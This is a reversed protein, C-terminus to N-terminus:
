DSTALATANVHKVYWIATAAMAGLRFGSVYSGFFFKVAVSNVNNGLTLCGPVIGMLVSQLTFVFHSPSAENEPIERNDTFRQNFLSCFVFGVATSVLFVVPNITFDKLITATDIITVACGLTTSLVSTYQNGLVKYAGQYAGQGMEGMFAVCRDYDM